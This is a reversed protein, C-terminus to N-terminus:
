VIVEIEKKVIRKFKEQEFDIVKGDEKLIKIM